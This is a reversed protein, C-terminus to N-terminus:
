LKVLIETATALSRQLRQHLFDPEALILLTQGNFLHHHTSAQPDRVLKCQFYRAYSDSSSVAPKV